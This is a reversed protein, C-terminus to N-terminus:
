WELTYPKASTGDGDAVYTDYIMSIVPRVRYECGGRSACNNGGIAQSWYGTYIVNNEDVVNNVPSMTWSDPWRDAGSADMPMSLYVSPSASGNYVLGALSLENIDMLGVKYRLKGNGTATENKTFSDRKNPCDIRPIRERGVYHGSTYWAWDSNSSSVREDKSGIAQHFVTRDSCYVTDELKDEVSAMNSGFWNEVTKKAESDIDNAYPGDGDDIKGGNVFEINKSTFKYNTSDYIIEISYLVKECSTSGDQCFYHKSAIFDSSMPGVEGSSPNKLIYRGDVYDVDNAITITSGDNTKHNTCIYLYRRNYMYGVIGPTTKERQGVWCAGLWDDEGDSPNIYETLTELQTANGINNCQKVGNEETPQGSYIMKVGGTSTTRVM